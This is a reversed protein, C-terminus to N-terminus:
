DEELKQGFNLDRTGVAYMLILVKIVRCVVIEDKSIKIIECLSFHGFGKRGM